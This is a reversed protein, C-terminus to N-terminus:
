KYLHRTNFRSFLVTGVLFGSRILTRIYTCSYRRLTHKVIEHTKTQLGVITSKTQIESDTSITKALLYTAEGVNTTKM